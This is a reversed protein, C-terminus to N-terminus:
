NRCRKAECSARDVAKLALDQGNFTAQDGVISALASIVGRMGSTRLYLAQPFIQETPGHASLIAWVTGQLRLDTERPDDLCLSM